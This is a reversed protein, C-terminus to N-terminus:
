FNFVKNSKIVKPPCGYEASFSSSFYTIDSFGVKYAVEYVLLNSTELLDKAIELRLKRIYHSTSLGTLATIKRHLQTRSINLTECFELIGFDPNTINQHLIDAIESLLAIDKKM